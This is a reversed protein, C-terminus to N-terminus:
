CKLTMAVNLTLVPTLPVSVASGFSVFDFVLVMTHKNNPSLNRQTVGAVDKVFRLSAVSLNQKVSRSNTIMVCVSGIQENKM